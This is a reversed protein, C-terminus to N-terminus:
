IFLMADYVRVCVCVRPTYWALVMANIEGVGYSFQIALAPAGNLIFVFFFSSLVLVFHGGCQIRFVFFFSGYILYPYEVDKCKHKSQTTFPKGNLTRAKKPAKILMSPHPSYMNRTKKFFFNLRNETSISWIPSKEFIYQNKSILHVRMEESKSKICWYKQKVLFHLKIIKNLTKFHTWRQTFYAQFAVM